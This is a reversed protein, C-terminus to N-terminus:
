RNRLQSGFAGFVHAQRGHQIEYSGAGAAIRGADGAPHILRGTFGQYSVSPSGFAQGGVNLMYARQSEDIAGTLRGNDIPGAADFRLFDGNGNALDFVGRWRTGATRGVVVDLKFSSTTADLDTRRGDHMIVAGAQGTGTLNFETGSRLLADYEQTTFFAGATPWRNVDYETNGNDYVTWTWHDFPTGGRLVPQPGNAAIDPPAQRPGRVTAVGGPGNRGARETEDKRAVESDVKDRADTVGEDAPPAGKDPTAAAGLLFLRADDVTMARTRFAAGERIEVAVGAKVITLIRDLKLQQEQALEDAAASREILISHGKPLHMIFVDERGQEIKFGLECGRIGITALKTKTKFREPNMETIKGTVVRFLGKILNLVSSNEEKNKPNYVYEDITMESRSGLSIVSDDAFMIQLKANAETKVRDNAFIESKLKLPRAVRDAGTATAKGRLLIVSGVPEPAAFVLAGTFVVACATLLTKKM